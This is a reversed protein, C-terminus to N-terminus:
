FGLSRRRFKALENRNLQYPNSGEVLVTGTTPEDITAILNLLTTKGSGSPGMVGVFEGKEVELNIDTLARYAIKGEYVKSVGKVQLM